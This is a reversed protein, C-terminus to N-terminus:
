ENPQPPLGRQNKQLLDEFFREWQGAVVDINFKTLIRERAARGLRVGLEPHHMLRAIAEALAVPDRPPVRLGSVGDEVLEKTGDVSTAIVPRELAMAEGVVLPLGEHLSSLVLADAAQILSMLEAHQVPPRIIVQERLDMEAAQDAIEEMLPGQGIMLGRPYLGKERLASLAELLFRHGKQRVFRAPTILLFDERPLGCRGRVAKTDFHEIARLGDLPFSNYIVDIEQLEFHHRFHRAVDWSVAVWGDMGHRMLWKHCAKRVRKIVTNAPYLDYDAIHFSVVRRPLPALARSLATYVAAWFLHAHVIDFRGRRCLAAIKAVGQVLNLRHNVNLRHVTIGSRELEPALDYPPFLAAVECTHGRSLLIPLLNVLLQEAGGRGLSEIVSLIKM